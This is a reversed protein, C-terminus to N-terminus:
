LKASVEKNESSLTYDAGCLRFSVSCGSLLSVSCSNRRVSVELLSGRYRVRFRYGRWAEPLFPEFSLGTESVRMGAFGNVIMMYSGGMSATHIGDGTNGHTNALDCKISEGFYQWAKDRLGLQSAVISFVCNSLSSDHTTIKEYYEFSRLETERSEIGDFLFYALITDAQKCVQHRYLYLPHYHLLLPYNEKPTNEFDWAPKNLFSDDQPNIGSEEDYPLYMNEAAEKFSLLEADSVDLAFSGCGKLIEAANYAWYLNFKACANTYFNNNVICTYEDPGTVDNIVFKGKSYNGTDMWLRATEILIEAGEEALYDMDGSALYYQVAAYAIDGNIHYQASGAPFFGSCERGSITRWPFMAGKKHGLLKANEKALALCNYRYRLIGRALSPNTNTFFPMLYIETDWFYHGEYGEGSLGKSAVACHEDCGCSQLLEYQNFCLALSSDDDSDIETETHLWFDDLYARQGAYMDDLKGFCEDMLKEASLLCDACRLTDTTVTYKVVRFSEGAKAFRSLRTCYSHNEADYETEGGNEGSFDHKVATCVTIGSKLTRSTLFSAGDELRHADANLLIRGDTGVRPDHPNSYNHVLGKHYSRLEIKADHETPTVECEVTFVNKRVFSAMRKFGLLVKQGKPSLWLVERKTIGESMDLERESHLVTGSFMSFREGDIFIDMSQVDAVNLMTDKEDVLGCLNEPQKMPIVDYVGNIYMGRMTAYTGPVGEELSARVGIYGNANHFVTEGLM